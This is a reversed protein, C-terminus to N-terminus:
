YINWPITIPLVARPTLTFYYTSYPGASDGSCDGDYVKGTPCVVVAAYKGIPAAEASSGFSAPYQQSLVGSVASFDDASILPQITGNKTYFLRLKLGSDSADPPGEIKVQFSVGSLSVTWADKGVLEKDVEAPYDAAYGVGSSASDLGFSQLTIATNLTTSYGKWGYNELDGAINPNGWGDRFTRGTSEPIVELYPGRWGGWLQGIVVDTGLVGSVTAGSLSINQVDWSLGGLDILEQINTPLRGMDAVFGSIEPGGNVTRTTDGVIARKILEMRRKTEDYKVQDEVGGTMLMTTATMLGMIFLVLLLELLSFGKACVLQSLSNIRAMDIM